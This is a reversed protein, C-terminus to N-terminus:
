IRDGRGSGMQPLTIPTTGRFAPYKQFTVRLAHFDVRGAAQPMNFFHSVCLRFAAFSSAKVLSDKRRQTLSRRSKKLM